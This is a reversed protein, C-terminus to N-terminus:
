LSAISAIRLDDNVRQFEIRLDQDFHATLADGDADYATRNWLLFSEAFIWHDINFQEICQTVVSVFRPLEVPAFVEDPVGTVATFFAGGGHPCRYYCYGDALGCTVISLNHGNFIDTLDFEDATLPELQWAEGLKNTDNALRVVADPFHNINEWGWLWTGSSNSESGIFQIPYERTGFLIVGRSLDVNWNENRVVLEGCANQVCIMKGLCASFVQRWDARDVSLRDLYELM